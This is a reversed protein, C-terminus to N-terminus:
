WFYDTGNALSQCVFDGMFTNMEDIGAVSGATGTACPGPVCNNGGASPWGVESIVNQKNTGQTLVVDHSDWFTWTWSAAQDVAVGGFFPHVNSMVIDVSSVLTATWDTGLDSTAVPLNINKATLNTKASTLIDGLQQESLDKRFLVENGIIVGAFPAAGNQDFLDYMANIQRDNTTANNELWVGLWLKMDTLALKNFAHLVMDTQNCDTGYLRVVNTLQSLVAMDRTVNNQSPPNTLCAPYQANFPTYDMGPFVRHLNPNGLLSKIEASDKDLDGSSDDQAASEDAGDATSGSSKNGKIGGVVGGVIAAIIIIAALIGVIWRMRRRGTTQRSLWESKETKPEDYGQGPIQGYQGNPSNRPGSVKRGILGGLGGLVGGVGTSGAMAGSANAHDSHKGFSLAPRGKLDEEALGDDGDDDISNPDFDEQGMRPDWATSYRKYPSDMYSTRGPSVNDRSYTGSLMPENSSYPRPALQEPSPPAAKLPTISAYSNREPSKQPSSRKSFLPEPIYPTDTGATDYDRERPFPRSSGELSRLAEVGSARENTNAVGFAIGAIGGGAATEGLNDM